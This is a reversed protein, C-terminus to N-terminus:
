SVCRPTLLINHPPLTDNNSHHQRKRHLLPARTHMRLCIHQRLTQGYDRWWKSCRRVVAFICRLLLLFLLLTNNFAFLCASVSLVYNIHKHKPLLLLLLLLLYVRLLLQRLLRAACFRHGIFVFSQDSPVGRCHFSTSHANHLMLSRVAFPRGLIRDLDNPERVWCGVHIRTLNGLGPRAGLMGVMGHLRRLHGMGLLRRCRDVALGDIVDLLRPLSNSATCAISGTAPTRLPLRVSIFWCCCVVVRHPTLPVLTDAPHVHM